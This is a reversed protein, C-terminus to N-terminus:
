LLIFKNFKEGSNDKLQVSQKVAGKVRGLQILLPWPLVNGVRLACCVGHGNVVLGSKDSNHFYFFLVVVTMTMSMSKYLYLCLILYFLYIKFKIKPWARCCTPDETGWDTILGVGVATLANLRLWQVELSTGLHKKKLACLKSGQKQWVVTYRPASELDTCLSRRGKIYCTDNRM